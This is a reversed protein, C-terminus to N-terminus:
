FFFNEVSNSFKESVSPFRFCPPFTNFYRFYPSNIQPQNSIFLDDSIKASSFIFSKRSFIFNPFNEVSDSFKKPFLPIRFCPSICWQRLTSPRRYQNSIQPAHIRILFLEIKWAFKRFIAIKKLYNWLFNSNELSFQRNVAIKICIIRNRKLLWWKRVYKRYMILCLLIKRGTWSGRQGSPGVVRKGLFHPNRSCWRGPNVGIHRVIM